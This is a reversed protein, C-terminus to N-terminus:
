RAQLADIAERKSTGFLNRKFREVHARLDAVEDRLASRGAEADRLRDMLQAEVMIAYIWLECVTVLLCEM